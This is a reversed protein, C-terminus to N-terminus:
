PQIPTLLVFAIVTLAACAVSWVLFLFVDVTPSVQSTKVFKSM